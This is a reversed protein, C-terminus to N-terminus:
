DKVIEIYSSDEIVNFTQIRQNKEDTIYVEGDRNTAIHRPIIFMGEEEGAKGFSRLFSGSRSDFVSVRHNETETVLLLDNSTIAVGNPFLLQGQGQGKTGISKVLEGDNNFVLVQHNCRDAVFVKEFKPHIIIGAPQFPKEGIIPILPLSINALFSGQQNFIVIKSGVRDSVYVKNQFMALGNPQQLDNNPDGQKFRLKFRGNSSFKQVSGNQRDAVYVNCKEDLVVDVPMLFQGRGSGRTGIVNNLRGNSTIVLVCHNGTDTIYMDNDPSVAVGWPQIVDKLTGSANSLVFQKVPRLIQSQLVNMYPRSYSLRKFMQYDNSKKPKARRPPPRPPSDHQKKVDDYEEEIESSSSDRAPEDYHDQTEEDEFRLEGNGGPNVFLKGLVKIAPVTSDDGEITICENLIGAETLQFQVTNPGSFTLFKDSLKVGETTEAMERTHNNEDELTSALKKIFSLSVSETVLRADVVTQSLSNSQTEVQSLANEAKAIKLQHYKSVAKCLSREREAITEQLVCFYANIERLVSDKHEIIAQKERRAKDAAKSAEELIRHSTPIVAKLLKISEAIKEEMRIFAHTQHKEVLCLLCIGVDCDDCFLEMNKEHPKCTMFTTYKHPMGAKTMQQKNFKEVLNCIYYNNPLADVGNLSLRTPRRCTPCTLIDSYQQTKVTKQLCGSCFIHGCSLSKPHSFTEKCIPCDLEDKLTDDIQATNM